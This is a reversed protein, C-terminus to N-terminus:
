PCPNEPIACAWGEVFFTTCNVRQMTKNGAGDDCCEWEEIPISVIERTGSLVTYLREDGKTDGLFAITVPGGILLPTIQKDYAWVYVGTGTPTGRGISVSGASGCTVEYDTLGITCRDCTGDEGPPITEDPVTGSPETHLSDVLEVVYWGDGLCRTTKAHRIEVGGGGEKLLAASGSAPDDFVRWGTGTPEMDWSGSVPGVVEAFTTSTTKGRRALDWTESTGYAGDAVPSPGNVFYLGDDGDPKDADYHGTSDNYATLKVCGYAPITEGSVNEWMIFTRLNHPQRGGGGFRPKTM